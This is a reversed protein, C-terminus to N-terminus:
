TQDDIPFPGSRRSERLEAELQEIRARYRDGRDNSRELAKELAENLSEMTEMAGQAQSVAQSDRDGRLKFFGLLAGLVGGSGVLAILYPTAGASADALLLM